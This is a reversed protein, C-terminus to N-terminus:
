HQPLLVHHHHPEDSNMLVSEFNASMWNQQEILSDFIQGKKEDNLEEDHINTM